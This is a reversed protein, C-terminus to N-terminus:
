SDHVELDSSLFLFASWLFHSHPFCSNLGRRSEELGWHTQLSRGRTASCTVAAEGQKLKKDRFSSTLLHVIIQSSIFFREQKLYLEWSHCYFKDMPKRELWNSIFAILEQPPPASPFPPSSYRGRSLHTKITPLTDLCHSERSPFVSSFLTQHVRFIQKRKFKTYQFSTEM